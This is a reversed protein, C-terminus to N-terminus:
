RLYRLVLGAAASVVLLWGVVKFPLSLRQYKGRADPVDLIRDPHNVMDIGGMDIEHPQEDPACEPLDRDM